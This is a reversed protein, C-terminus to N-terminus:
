STNFRVNIEKFKELQEKVRYNEEDEPEAAIAEEIVLLAVEWKQKKSYLICLDRYSKSKEPKLSISKKM